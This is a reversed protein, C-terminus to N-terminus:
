LGALVSLFGVTESITGRAWRGVKTSIPNTVVIM